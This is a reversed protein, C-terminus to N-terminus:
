RASRKRAEDYLQQIRNWKIKNQPPPPGVWILDECWMVDLLWYISCNLIAWKFFEAAFDCRLKISINTQTLCAYIQQQQWLPGNSDCDWTLKINESVLCAIEFWLCSKTVISFWKWHCACVCLAFYHIYQFNENTQDFKILIFRQYFFTNNLLDFSSDFFQASFFNFLYVSSATRISSSCYLCACLLLSLFIPSCSIRRLFNSVSRNLSMYNIWFIFGFLLMSSSFFWQFIWVCLFVSFFCFLVFLIFSLFSYSHPELM